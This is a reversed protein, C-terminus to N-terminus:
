ELLSKQIHGHLFAAEEQVLDLLDVLRVAELEETNM